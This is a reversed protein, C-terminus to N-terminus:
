PKLAKWLKAILEHRAQEVAVHHASDAVVPVVSAVPELLEIAKTLAEADDERLVRKLTVIYGAHRETM